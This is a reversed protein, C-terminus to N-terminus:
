AQRCEGSSNWYSRFWPRSNLAVFSSNLLWDAALNSSMLLSDGHHQGDMLAFAGTSGMVDECDDAANVCSVRMDIVEASYFDVFLM